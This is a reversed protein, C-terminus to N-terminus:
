KNQPADIAVEATRAMHSFTRRIYTDRESQWEATEAETPMYNEVMERTIGKSALLSEMVKQRRKVAWVDSSLSIIATMMDDIVPNGMFVANHTDNKVYDSTHTARDTKAAM